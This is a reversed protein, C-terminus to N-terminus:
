NENRLESKILNAAAVPNKAATIPRGVVFYDCGRSVAKSPTVVRKQDDLDAWKPRIGPTLILFKDGCQSRLTRIEAASCVVGDLGSEQALSALRKVQDVPPDGVGIEKLDKSNLSTLVTVALLKPKKIGIKNAEDNTADRAAEMMARGGSAHIDLIFPKLRVAARVAASVTNPIDHFKLDLFVPVGEEIIAVVGEPGHATFLEKGIKVGGVRGKLQRVLNKAGLIDVTDLAVIIRNGPDLSM